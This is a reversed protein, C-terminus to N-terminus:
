TGEGERRLGCPVRWFVFYVWMARAERVDYLGRLCLMQLAHGRGAAMDETLKSMLGTKGAERMFKVAGPNQYAVGSPGRRRRENVRNLDNTCSCRRLGTEPTLAEGNPFSIHRYLLIYPKSRTATASISIFLCMGSPGGMGCGAPMNGCRIGAPRLSPKM